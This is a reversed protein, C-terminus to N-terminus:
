SVATSPMTPETHDAREDQKGPQEPVSGPGRGEAEATNAAADTGATTNSATVGSDADKGAGSGEEIVEQEFLRKLNKGDVDIKEFRDLRHRSALRLARWTKSAKSEQLQEKEEDTNAFDMDLDDAEIKQWLSEASPATYRTEM